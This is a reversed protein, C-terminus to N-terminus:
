RLCLPYSQTQSPINVHEPYSFDALEMFVDKPIDVLVPGPRGNRAIFFAEKIVEAIDAAHMVLYNHKTIPLTIGTVDCEQFADKGIAARAVQGTIFVTPISDM